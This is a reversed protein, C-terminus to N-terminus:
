ITLKFLCESPQVTFGLSGSLVLKLTNVGVLNPASGKPRILSNVNDLIGTKCIGNSVYNVNCSNPSSLQM